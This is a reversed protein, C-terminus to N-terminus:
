FNGTAFNLSFDTERAFALDYFSLGGRLPSPRANPAPNLRMDDYTPSWDPQWLSDDLRPSFTDDNDPSFTPIPDDCPDLLDFALAPADFNHQPDLRLRPYITPSLSPSSRPSKTTPELHDLNLRSAGGDSPEPRHNDNVTRHSISSPKSPRTSPKAKRAASPTARRQRKSKIPQSSDPQSHSLARFDLIWQDSPIVEFGASKEETARLGIAEWFALLLAECDLNGRPEWTNDAEPFGKWKILYIWGHGFLTSEPDLFHPDFADENRKARLIVEVEWEVTQIARKKSM